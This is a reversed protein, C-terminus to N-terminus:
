GVVHTTAVSPFDSAASIEATGEDGDDKTGEISTADLLCDTGRLMM